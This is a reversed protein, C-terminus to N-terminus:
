TLHHIGNFTEIKNSYKWCEKEKTHNDCTGIIFSIRDSRSYMNDGTRDINGHFTLPFDQQKSGICGNGNTTVSRPTYDRFLRFFTYAIISRHSGIDFGCRAFRFDSDLAVVNRQSPYQNFLFGFSGSFRLNRRTGHFAIGFGQRCLNIGTDIDTIRQLSGSTLSGPSIRPYTLGVDLSQFSQAEVGHANRTSPIRMEGIFRRILYIGCPQVTDTFHYTIAHCVIHISNKIDVPVTTPQFIM